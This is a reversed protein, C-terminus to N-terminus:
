YRFDKADVDRHETAINELAQIEDGSPHMKFVLKLVVKVLLLVVKELTKFDM